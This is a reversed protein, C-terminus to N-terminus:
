MVLFKNLKETNRKNLETRGKEWYTITDTSVGIIKAVDKQFLGMDMRKKILKEGITKPKAPYGKAHFKSRKIIM